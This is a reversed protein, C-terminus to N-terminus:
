IFIEDICHGLWEPHPDIGLIRALTPATELLSVDSQIEYDPRIGPGAIM